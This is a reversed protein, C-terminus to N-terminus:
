TGPRRSGFMVERGEPMLEGIAAVALHPSVTMFRNIAAIRPAISLAANVAGRADALGAATSIWSGLAPRQATGEPLTADERSPPATSPAEEAAGTAAAGASASASGISDAVALM